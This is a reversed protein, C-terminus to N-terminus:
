GLNGARSGRRKFVSIFKQLSMVCDLLRIYTVSQKLVEAFKRMEGLVAMARTFYFDAPYVRTMKVSIVIDQTTNIM